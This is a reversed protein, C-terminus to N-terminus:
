GSRQTVGIRERPTNRMFGIMTGSLTSGTMVIAAGAVLLAVLTLMLSNTGAIALIGLVIVALGAMGQVGSSGAAVDSAVKGLMSGRTQFRTAISRSTLLHWVASSSVVLAGGFAVAAVATLMSPHVGLLALVGLVIGAAGVLFLGSLGAGGSGASAEASSEILAFESLMAGAQILLAAGFVITAISLLIEAKVGSLAIIALVMTAIGGLADVFGGYAASEGAVGTESSYTTSM